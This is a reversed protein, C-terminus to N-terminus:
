SNSQDGYFVYGSGTSIVKTTFNVQTVDADTNILTGTMVCVNQADCSSIVINSVTASPFLSLDSNAALAAGNSAMDAALTAKNYGTDLYKADFLTLVSTDQLGAVSGLGSILRDVSNSFNSAFSIAAADTGGGCASLMASLLFGTVLRYVGSPARFVLTM